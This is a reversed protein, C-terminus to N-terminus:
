FFGFWVLIHDPTQKTKNSVSGTYTARVRDTRSSAKYVLRDEFECLDKQRKRGLAPIM